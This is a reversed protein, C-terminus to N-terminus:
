KFALTFSEAPFVFWVSVLVIVKSVVKGVITKAFGVVFVLLKDWLLIKALKDKVSVFRSLTFIEKNLEVLFIILEVVPVVLGNNILKM